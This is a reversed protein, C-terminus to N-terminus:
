RSLYTRRIAGIVPLLGAGLLMFTSPEPSVTTIELTAFPFGGIGCVSQWAGSLTGTSRMGNSWFGTFPASFGGDLEGCGGSVGESADYTGGTSVGAFTLNGYTGTIPGDTTGSFSYGCSYQGDSGGTMSTQVSTINWNGWFGNGTYDIYAGTPYAFGPFSSYIDCFDFAFAADGTFTGTLSPVNNAAHATGLSVGCVLMTIAFSYCVFFRRRM